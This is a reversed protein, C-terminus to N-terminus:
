QGRSPPADPLIKILDATLGQDGPKGLVMIHMGTEIVSSSADNDFSRIRTTDTRLIQFTSGDPTAITISSPTVATVEGIAGHGDEIFDHPMRMNIPGPGRFEWMRDQPPHRFRRSGFVVGAHFIMLAILAIGVGVIIRHGTSSSVWEDVREMNM